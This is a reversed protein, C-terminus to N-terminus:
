MRSVSEPHSLSELHQIHLQRRLGLERRRLMLEEWSKRAMEQETMSDTDSEIRIGFTNCIQEMTDRGTSQSGQLAVFFIFISYPIEFTFQKINVQSPVSPLLYSVPVITSSQYSVASSLVPAATAITVLSSSIPM